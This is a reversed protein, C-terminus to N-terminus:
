LSQIYYIDHLCRWGQKVKLYQAGNEDEGGLESLRGGSKIYDLFYHAGVERAERGVLQAVLNSMTERVHVNGALNEDMELWEAVTVDKAPDFAEHDRLDVEYAEIEIKNFLALAM